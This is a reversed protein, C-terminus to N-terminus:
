QCVLAIDGYHERLVRGSALIVFTGRASVKTTSIGLSQQHRYVTVRSPELRTAAQAATKGAVRARSALELNEGIPAQESLPRGFRTGSQKAAAIRTLVRKVILESKYEAQLRGGSARRNRALM